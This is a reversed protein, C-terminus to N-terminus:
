LWLMPSGDLVDRSPWSALGDFLFAFLGKVGKTSVLEQEAAWEVEKVLNDGLELANVLYRYAKKEETNIPSQDGPKQGVRAVMYAFKLALLRDEESLLRPIVADLVSLDLGWAALQSAAQELSADGRESPFYRDVLDELLRKEQPDIVGDCWAVCCAIKLLALARQQDADASSAM